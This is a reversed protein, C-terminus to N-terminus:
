RWDTREDAVDPLYTLYQVMRPFLGRNPTGCHPLEARWVLFDGAEGPVALPQLQRPALERPDADAPLSALWEGIRHHFGPVCHFAGEESACDNLYVLGQLRFPMPQVLSVDWHLPSGNFHFSGTEPPAFGLKDITKHIAESGYLQRCAQYIRKSQRVADLAPHDFLHLMVGRKSEHPRYWSAPEDPSAGLLKWIAERVDACLQEPVAKKLVLYGNRRWFELEGASLVDAPPSNSRGEDKRNDMLWQRYAEVGPKRGYLFQLASETAIGMRNLAGTEERWANPDATSGPTFAREWFRQLLPWQDV